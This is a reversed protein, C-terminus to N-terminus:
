SEKNEDSQVETTTNILNIFQTTPDLKEVTDKFANFADALAEDAKLTSSIAREFKATLNSLTTADIFADYSAVEIDALIEVTSLPWTYQRLANYLEVYAHQIDPSSIIVDTEM